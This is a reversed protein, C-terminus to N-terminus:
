RSKRISIAVRTRGKEAMNKTTKGNNVAKIMHFLRTTKYLSSVSTEM